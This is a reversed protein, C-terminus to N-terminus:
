RRTRFVWKSDIEVRSDPYYFVTSLGRRGLDIDVVCVSPLLQKDPITEMAVQIRESYSQKGYALVLAPGVEAPCIELGFEQGRSCFADFRPETIFGFHHPTVKVLQINEVAPATTFHKRELIDRATCTIMSHNRRLAKLYGEAGKHIGIPITKWIRFTRTKIKYVGDLLGKVSTLIGDKNQGLMTIHERMFGARELADGLQNMQGISFSSM